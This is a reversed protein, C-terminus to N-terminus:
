WVTAVSRRRRGSAVRMAFVILALVMLIVPLDTLQKDNIRKINFNNSFIYMWKSDGNIFWFCLYM